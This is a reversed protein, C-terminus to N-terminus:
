GSLTQSNGCLPVESLPLCLQVLRLTNRGLGKAGYLASDAKALLSAATDGEDPVESVLKLDLFL